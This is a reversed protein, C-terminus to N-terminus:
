GTLQWESSVEGNPRRPMMPPLVSVRTARGVRVTKTIVTSQELRLADMLTTRTM